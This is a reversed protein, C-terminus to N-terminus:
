RPSRCSSCSSGRSRDGGGDDGVFSGPWLVQAAAYVYAFGWAVVTFAAGTAFLEDRTVRDDHFLYRIMAYSVFFYFPAHFLASTLVIWDTTPSSPRSSPSSWRRSRRAAGGGLDLAPTRRVAAVAALVVCWRSSASSRGARRHLRRPVPLRARGAAARGAPRRVPPALVARRSRSVDSGPSPPRQQELEKARKKELRQVEAAVIESRAHRRDRVLNLLTSPSSSARGPSTRDGGVGITAFWIAWTVLGAGLFGFFASAASTAGTSRPAGSSTAALDGRGAAGRAPARGTAAVLDAVLPPLEGLTRAPLAAASREDYEERDLRGDAYAETLVQHVVDRDADSARLPPSRPDRPDHTFSSWVETAM